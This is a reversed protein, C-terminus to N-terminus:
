FSDGGAETESQETEESCWKKVIRGPSNGYKSKWPSTIYSSPGGSCALGAGFDRRRYGGGKSFDIRKGGTFKSVLSMVHEARNTTENTTLRDAKQVVTELRVLIAEWLGSEQLIPVTSEELNDKRVCYEYRCRDHDGFVHFPGNRLDDRLQSVNLGANQRIAGRVAKTLRPIVSKLLKRSESSFSIDSTLKHLKGTYNRTIHNACEMKIMECGRPTRERLKQFTNSDGDGIVYKCWVGHLHYLQRVGEVLISHEMGTSPGRYNRNCNHTEPM